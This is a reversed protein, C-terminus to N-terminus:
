RRNYYAPDPAKAFVETWGSSQPQRVFGVPVQSGYPHTWTYIHLMTGDPLLHHEDDPPSTDPLMGPEPEQIELIWAPVGAETPLGLYNIISAQQLRSWRYGGPVSGEAFPPVGRAALAEPEPWAGTKIRTDEAAALGTRIAAYMQQDAEPLSATLAQYPLLNRGADSSRSPGLLLYLGVLGVVALGLAVVGFREKGSKGGPTEGVRRQEIV